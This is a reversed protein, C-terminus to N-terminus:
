ALRELYELVRASKRGDLVHCLHSRSIGLDVAIDKYRLGKLVIKARLERLHRSNGGNKKSVKYCNNGM